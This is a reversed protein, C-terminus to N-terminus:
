GRLRPGVLEAPRLEVPFPVDVAVAEGARVVAVERYVDGDLAHVVVVPAEPEDLVVRWYVPVGAEALVSPKVKRDMLRSSPSEVEVVLRVDSAAFRTAEPTVAMRSVVLVDPEVVSRGLDVDVTELVELDDTQAAALLECVRRAVIQHWPTPSASVHLSGDIIEYRHGDDPIEQLDAWTWDRWRPMSLTVADVADAVEATM